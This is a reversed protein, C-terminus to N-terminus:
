FVETIIIVIIGRPLSYSKSSYASIELFMGATGMAGSERGSLDRPAFRPCQQQHAMATLWISLMAQLM